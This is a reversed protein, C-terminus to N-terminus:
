RKKGKAYRALGDGIRTRCDVLDLNAQRFLDSIEEETWRPNAEAVEGWYIFNDRAFGTLGREDALATATTVTMKESPNLMAFIGTPKLLRNIEQLAAAPNDVLYIVNTATILDFSGDAYPLQPLRGAAFFDGYHASAQHLMGPEADTGYAAIRYDQRFIDVLAGPGCGVDLLRTSAAPDVFRAFSELIARWGPNAQVTSFYEVPNQPM